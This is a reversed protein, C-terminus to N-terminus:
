VVNVGNARTREYREEGGRADNAGRRLGPQVHKQTALSKRKLADRIEDISSESWAGYGSRSLPHMLRNTDKKIFSDADKPAMSGIIDIDVALQACFDDLPLDNM